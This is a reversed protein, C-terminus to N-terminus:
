EFVLCSWTYTGDYHFSVTAHIKRSLEDVLRLGLGSLSTTSQEQRILQEYQQQTFAAGQNKIVLMTKGKENKADILIQTGEPAAKIANQLLNRIITQVYNADTQVTLEEPIETKYAIHRADSNLLLLRQCDRVIATINIQQKQTEFANMQTKSWLLLDEMTELLSGTANQIKSNLAAKQDESLADPNLQQLKLFQYVQNIPSRLDHSIIGFLKAKTKNAEDLAANLKGLADANKKKSRYFLFLLGALLLLTAMGAVLWLRQQRAFSLQVKQAEIEKIKEKNQFRAEANAMSQQASKADISDRVPLYKKYYIAANQWQNLGEYCDALARLLRAYVATSFASGAKEAKQLYPLAAAYNKQVLLTKGMAYQFSSVELTGTVKTGALAEAQKLYPMAAAANQLDLYHDAGALYLELLISWGANDNLKQEVMNRLSDTYQQAAIANGLKLSTTAMGKYYSCIGALYNWLLPQAYRYYERAKTYQHLKEYLDGVNFYAVGINTSDSDTNKYKGQKMDAVSLELGQLRYNLEQEYWGIASYYDALSSYCGIRVDANTATDLINNLEAATQDRQPIYGDVNIYIYLLEKLVNRIRKDNKALRAHHLSSEYYFIASDNVAGRYSVGTYFYFLSQNYHDNADAVSLAFRSVLRMKDYQELYNLSDCQKALQQLQAKKTEAPGPMRQAGSHMLSLVLCIASLLRPM